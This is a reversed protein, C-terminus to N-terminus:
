ISQCTRSAVNNHQRARSASQPGPPLGSTHIRALCGDTATAVNRHIGAARLVVLLTIARITGALQLPLALVVDRVPWPWMSDIRLPRLKTEDFGQLCQPVHVFPDDYMSLPAGIEGDLVTYLKFVNPFTSSLLVVWQRTTGWLLRWCRRRSQKRSSPPERQSPDYNVCKGLGLRVNFTQPQL